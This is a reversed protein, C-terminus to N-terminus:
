WFRSEGLIFGWIYWSERAILVGILDSCGWLDGRLFGTAGLAMHCKVAVSTGLRSLGAGESGSGLAAELEAEEM